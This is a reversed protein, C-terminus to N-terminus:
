PSIATLSHTLSSVLAHIAPNSSDPLSEYEDGGMEDIATVLAAPDINSM